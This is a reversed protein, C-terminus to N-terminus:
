VRVKDRLGALMKEGIGPVSLLDDVSRFRGNEERWSIIREAIAPGIRPLTDLQDATATNLDITGTAAAGGGAAAAAGDPAGGGPHAEAAAGLVPVVIQEGDSVARALNVGARDADDAFGGAAAVADMVRSGAPLRYLGAAGVAGTVHVYLGVTPAHAASGSPSPVSTVVEAGTAGRVMGIVVVVAFAALVLVIVAGVGLRRRAAPPEAADESTTM